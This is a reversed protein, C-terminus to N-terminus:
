KQKLHQMQHEHWFFLRRIRWTTFLMILCNDVNDFSYSYLVSTNLCARLCSNVAVTGPAKIFDIKTQNKAHCVGYRRKHGPSCLFRQTSQDYKHLTLTRHVVRNASLTRVWMLFTNACYKVKGKGLAVLGVALPLPLGWSRSKNVKLFILRLQPTVVFSACVRTDRSAFFMDRLNNPIGLYNSLYSKRTM